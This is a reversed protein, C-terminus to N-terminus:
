DTIAANSDGALEDIGSAMRDVAHDNKRPNNDYPILKDVSWQELEM